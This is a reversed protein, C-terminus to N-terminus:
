LIEGHVDIKPLLPKRLQHYILKMIDQCGNSAHSTPSSRVDRSGKGHHPVYFAYRKSPEEDEEEEDDDDDDDCDGDDDSENNQLLPFQFVRHPGM